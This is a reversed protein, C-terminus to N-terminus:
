KLEFVFVDPRRGGCVGTGTAGQWDSPFIAWRGDPSVQPSAYDLFSCVPSSWHRAFRWLRGQGKAATTEIAALESGLVGPGGIASAIVPAQNDGRNNLWSLHINAAWSPSAFFSCPQILRYEADTMSDTPRVALGRSDSACGNAGTATWRASSSQAMVGAHGYAWHTGGCAVTWEYGTRADLSLMLSTSAYNALGPVSCMANGHTDIALWRGDLSLMIEHNGITAPLRVAAGNMLVPFPVGNITQARLDISSTRGTVRDYCIVRYGVDQPGEAICVTRGGWAATWAAAPWGATKPDFITSWAATVLNYGRAVGGQLGVVLDPDAPDFEASILAPPITGSAGLAMGSPDFGQWYLKGSGGWSQVLFRTSTANWARKWGGDFTKFAVTAAEGYSGSATARLVRNGTDADFTRTGAAAIAPAAAAPWAGCAWPTSGGAPGCAPSTYQAGLPALTLFIAILFRM